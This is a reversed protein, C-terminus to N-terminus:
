APKREVFEEFPGDWDFLVGKCRQCVVRDERMGTHPDRAWPRTERRFVHKLRGRCVGPDSIDLRHEMVTASM